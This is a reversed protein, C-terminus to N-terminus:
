ITSIIPSQRFSHFGTSYWNGGSLGGRKIGGNLWLDDIALAIGTEDYQRYFSDYPNNGLERIKSYLSCWDYSIKEGNNNKVHFTGFCQTTYDEFEEIAIMEMEIIKLYIAGINLNGFHAKGFYNLTDAVFGSVIKKSKVKLEEKMRSILIESAGRFDGEQTKKLMVVLDESYMEVFDIYQLTRGGFVKQEVLSKKVKTIFDLYLAEEKEELLEWFIAEAELSPSDGSLRGATKALAEINISDINKALNPYGRAKLNATLWVRAKALAVDNM